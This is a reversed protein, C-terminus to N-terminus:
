FSGLAHNLVDIDRKSRRRATDIGRLFLRALHFGFHHIARRGVPFLSNLLFSLASCGLHGVTPNLGRLVGLM